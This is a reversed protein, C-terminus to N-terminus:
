DSEAETALTFDLNKEVTQKAEAEDSVVGKGSERGTVTTAETHHHSYAREQRLPRAWQEETSHARDRGEKRGGDEGWRRM